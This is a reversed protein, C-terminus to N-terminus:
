LQRQHANAPKAQEEPIPGTCRPAPSPTPEAPFEPSEIEDLWGTVEHAEHRPSPSGHPLNAPDLRAISPVPLRERPAKAHGIRNTGHEQRAHRAGPPAM